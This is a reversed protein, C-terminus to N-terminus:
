LFFYYTPYNQQSAFQTFPQPFSGKYTYKDSSFYRVRASGVQVTKYLTGHWAFLILLFISAKIPVASMNNVKRLSGNSRCQKNTAKAINYAFFHGSSRKISVFLHKSSFFIQCGFGVIQRGFNKPNTALQRRSFFTLKPGQLM